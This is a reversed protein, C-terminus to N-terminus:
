WAGVDQVLARLGRTAMQYFAHDPERKYAHRLVLGISLMWGAARSWDPAEVGPLQTRLRARQGADLMMWLWFLDVAWDGATVDGWDILVVQAGHLIVNFPHVDGHCWSLTAPSPARLAGEWILTLEPALISEPSDSKLLTKLGARVLVDRRALARHGGRHPNIPADPAVELTHLARLGRALHRAVQSSAQAGPPLAGWPAGQRWPVVAWPYPFAETPRGVYLPASTPLSLKPALKPLWTNEHRLAQCAAERRPLRLAAGHSLRHMTNDWGQAIPHADLLTWNPCQKLLTDILEPTIAITPEVHQPADM